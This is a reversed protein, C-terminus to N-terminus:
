SNRTLTICHHLIDFNCHLLLGNMDSEYTNAQWVPGVRAKATDELDELLNWSENETLSNFTNRHPCMNSMERFNNALQSCGTGETKWSEM